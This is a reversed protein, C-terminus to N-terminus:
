HNKAADLGHKDEGQKQYVLAHERLATVCRQPQNNWGEKDRARSMIKINHRRAREAFASFDADYIRTVWKHSCARILM